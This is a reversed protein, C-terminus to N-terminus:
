LNKAAFVDLATVGIVSAMAFGVRARDNRRDEAARALSTLDVADGAVRAWLWAAPRPETLIGIGAALERLGYLRLLTRNKTRNQVGTLKAVLGPTLVEAAGLGISFWGLGNTIRQMTSCQGAARNPQQQANSTIM